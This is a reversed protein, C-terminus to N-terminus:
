LSYRAHIIGIGFMSLLIVFALVTNANWLFRYLPYKERLAYTESPWVVLRFGYERYVIYWFYPAFLVQALFLLFSIGATYSLLTVAVGAASTPDIERM